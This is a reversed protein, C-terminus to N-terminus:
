QLIKYGEIKSTLQLEAKYMYYCTHIYTHLLFNRIEQNRDTTKLHLICACTYVEASTSHHQCHQQITSLTQVLVAIALVTSVLQEKLINKDGGLDHIFTHTYM